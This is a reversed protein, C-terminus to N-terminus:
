PRMGEAWTMTPGAWAQLNETIYAPDDYTIFGNDKLQWFAGITVVTLILCIITIRPLNPM